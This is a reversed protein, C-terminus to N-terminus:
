RTRRKRQAAGARGERPPTPARARGRRTTRRPKRSKAARARLASGLALRAWPLMAEPDEHAEDPPRFYGTKEMRVKKHVYTWQRCGAAVFRERTEADSKLFLEGDDLLAFMVGEAYLGHGGFMARAEVSGLLGVLDLAHAVFGPDSPM